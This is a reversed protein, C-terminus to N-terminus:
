QKGRKKIFILRKTNEYDDAVIRYFYIGSTVPRGVRDEGDWVVEYSGATQYDDVLRKIEQGLLNYISLHVDRSESLVYRITTSSQFPNPTNQHLEFHDILMEFNDNKGEEVGTPLSDFALVTLVGDFDSAYVYGKQTFAYAGWNGDFTPDDNPLYTDYRAVEVPNTPDAIDVVVIGTTYHSIYAFRGQIHTNHALGNAGLYEGVMVINSTDSIDWMKVSKFPTEETTMVYPGIDSAWINHVYGASPIQVRKILQPNTKNSLDYFSFYPSSGEATFVTDNRAYLDHLGPVIVFTDQVPNEPDALNVVRFRGGNQIYAYGATTDITLNHSRPDGGLDVSKVFHVSDPLFQLDIIMLGENTGTMEGVAYAYNRYTKIDRHYYCDGGQPGPIVDVVQLSSDVNVVAIGELVGMLAYETGDPATWGWCDSGGVIPTAGCGASDALFQTRGILNLSYATSTSPVVTFSFALFIGWFLLGTDKRRM